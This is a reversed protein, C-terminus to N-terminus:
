DLKFATKVMPSPRARGTFIRATTIGSGLMDPRVMTEIALFTGDPFKRDLCVTITSHFSDSVSSFVLANGVRSLRVDLNGSNTVLMFAPEGEPKNIMQVIQPDSTKDKSVDPDLLPKGNKALVVYQGETEGISFLTVADSSNSTSVEKSNAKIAESKVSRGKRDLTEMVYYTIYAFWVGEKDKIKNIYIDIDCPRGSLTVVSESQLQDLMERNKVSKILDRSPTKGLLSYNDRLRNLSKIAEDFDAIEASFFEAKLVAQEYYSLRFVAIPVGNLTLNKVAYYLENQREQLFELNAQKDLLQRAQKPTADIPLSFPLDNGLLQGNLLNLALISLFGILSRRLAEYVPYKAVFTETYPHKRSGESSCPTNNKIMKLNTKASGVIRCM